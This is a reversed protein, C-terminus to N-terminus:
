ECPEGKILMVLYSLRIKAAPEEEAVFVRCVVTGDDWAMVRAAREDNHDFAYLDAALEIVFAQQEPRVQSLDADIFQVPWVWWGLIVLGFVAGVVFAPLAALALYSRRVNQLKTDAWRLRKRLREKLSIRPAITPYDLIAATNLRKAPLHAKRRAAGGAAPRISQYRDFNTNKPM